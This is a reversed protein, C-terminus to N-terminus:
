VEGPLTRALTLVFVSQAGGKLLAQTCANLTAGTTMVDDVLLVNKGEITNKQRHPVAFADQVNQLREERNLGAQAPTRRTRELARPLFPHGSSKSLARALLAAQNYRRQLLRTLHLPVPVIVDFEQGHPLVARQLWTAFMPTAQTRDHYKYGTILARSEDTYLFVSRARTYPPPSTLCPMCLAADGMSHPFPVGCCDCVPDSIFDMEGWCAACLSHPAGSLEGCAFCRPPFLSDLLQEGSWRMATKVPQLFVM